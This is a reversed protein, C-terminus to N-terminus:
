GDMWYQNEEDLMRVDKDCRFVRNFDPEGDIYESAQEDNSPCPFRVSVDKSCFHIKCHKWVDSVKSYISGNIRGM